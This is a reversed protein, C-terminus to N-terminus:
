EEAPFEDPIEPANGEEEQDDEEAAWTTRDPDEYDGACASCARVAAIAGQAAECSGEPDGQAMERLPLKGCNEVALVRQTGNVHIVLSNREVLEKLLRGHGTGLGLGWPLEKERSGAVRELAIFEGTETMGGIQAFLNARQEILPDIFGRAGHDRAQQNLLALPQRANRFRGYDLFQKMPAVAGPAMEHGIINKRIPRSRRRWAGAGCSTLNIKRTKSSLGAGSEGCPVSQAMPRPPASMPMPPWPMRRALSAHRLFADSRRAEVRALAFGECSVRRMGTGDRQARDENQMTRDSIVM